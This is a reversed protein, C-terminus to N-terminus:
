EPRLLLPSKYIPLVTILATVPLVVSFWIVSSSLKVILSVKVTIPPDPLMNFLLKWPGTVNRLDIVPSPSLMNELILKLFGSPIILLSM